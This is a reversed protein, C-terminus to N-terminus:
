PHQETDNTDRRCDDSPTCDQGKKVLGFVGALQVDKDPQHASSSDVIDDRKEAVSHSRGSLELNLQRKHSNSSTASGQNAKPKDRNEPQLSRCQRQHHRSTHARCPADHHDGM